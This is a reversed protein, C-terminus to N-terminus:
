KPLPKASSMPLDSVYAVEFPALILLIVTDTLEGARKLIDQAEQVQRQTIEKSCTIFALRKSM